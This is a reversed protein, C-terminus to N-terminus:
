PLGEVEALAREFALDRARIRLEEAFLVELDQSGLSVVRTAGAQGDITASAEVCTGSPTSRLQLGQVGDGLLVRALPVGESVERIRVAVRGQWELASSLWGAFLRGAHIDAADIELRDFRAAHRWVAPMDFFHAMLARWRTLRAWRMDTVATRDVLAAADRWLEGPEEVDLVLRDALTAVRALPELAGGRWWVVTPLSSLRLAALANDLFEPRLDELRMAQETMHAAPSAQSGPSILIVRVAGGMAGLAASAGSLREPPGVVVVTAMRQRVGDGGTGEADRLRSAMEAFPVVRDTV